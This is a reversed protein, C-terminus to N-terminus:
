IDQRLPLIKYFIQQFRRARKQVSAQGSAAVRVGGLSAQQGSSDDRDATKM